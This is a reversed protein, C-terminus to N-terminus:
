DTADVDDQDALAASPVPTPADNAGNITITLAATDNGGEGDTVTYSFVETLTEGQKLAQVAPDTNDLSYVYSGDAKVKLQGHDGSISMYGDGDPTGQSTAGFGIERVAL